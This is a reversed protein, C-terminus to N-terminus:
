IVISYRHVLWKRAPVEYFRYIAYGLSLTICASSLLIWSIPTNPYFPMIIRKKIQGYVLYHLLYTSLSIDGLFKYFVAEKATANIFLACSVVAIMCAIILFPFHYGVLYTETTQSPYLFVFAISALVIIRALIQYLVPHFKVSLHEYKKYLEACIIGATFYVLFVPFVTYQLWTRGITNEATLAIVYAQNLVLGLLLVTLMTKWSRIFILFLPFLLYFVWEIGISWGGVVASTNGPEVIGFLFTGNLIFSALKIPNVLAPLNDLKIFVILFYLPFIRAFRAVFFNRFNTASFEQPSYVYWLSFGSLIFFIYVGFTSVQFYDVSYGWYFYHYAMISIACLGRLGDLAHLRKRTNHIKIM